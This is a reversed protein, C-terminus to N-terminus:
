GAGSEGDQTWPDPCGANGVGRWYDCNPVLQLEGWEYDELHVVLVDGGSEGSSQAASQIEDLRKQLRGWREELGACEGASGPDDPQVWM